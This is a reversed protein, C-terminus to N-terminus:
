SLETPELDQMIIKGEIIRGVALAIVLKWQTQPHVKVFGKLFPPCHEKMAPSGADSVCVGRFGLRAVLKPGIVCIRNEAYVSAKDTIVYSL